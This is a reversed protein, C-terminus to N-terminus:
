CYLTLNKKSIISFHRMIINSKPKEEYIIELRNVKLNNKIDILTYVGMYKNLLDKLARAIFEPSRLDSLLYFGAPKLIRGIEALAKDWNPIHHLVNFSLVIDFENNEFSLNTADAEFFKLYENEKNDKKAKEIQEPDIDIGIIEWRYKGALYSTLVGIGCGIELVKKVNSLDIQNFLREVLNINKKARNKSNVFKKELKSMKM